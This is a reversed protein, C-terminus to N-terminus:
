AASGVGPRFFAEANGDLVADRGAEDLVDLLLDGDPGHDHPHGSAHLLWGSGVMGLVEAARRRDAPLHAPRTSARFHRRVYASPKERVWPVERWISKWDKDFRWLLPPLWTFGCELLAVRLEPFRAFVGESVMSLVHAQAMQANGVLDQLYTSTFGTPTASSGPRGWAHIGVTLDHRAAAAYLPHYRRNGYPADARVPLLVQVFRRDAGLREVEAVASEVDVTSVALSARLRDDRDLWEARLWDNVASAVAASYYPNRHVEFLTLCNLIAARPGGPADLLRERLAEYDAPAGGGTSAAGPPYATPLGALRIGAESVYERWYDDLYPALAALSAPACHVDCDIV